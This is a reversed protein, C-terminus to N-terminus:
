RSKVMTVKASDPAPRRAFLSEDIPADLDWKKLRIDWTPHGPLDTFTLLMRRPLRDNVGVWLDTTMGEQVTHLRHCRTFGVREVGTVSASTVHLFLTSLLDNALLEAVPPRFGFRQDVIDSFGEISSARFTEMAHHKLGPHIVRLTRGDYAIERTEDGAAQIAHFRNPRSVTIIIPGKGLKGGTGIAPDIEHKATLRLTKATQLKAAIEKALALAEPQIATPSGAMLGGPSIVATLALALIISPIRIQHKM